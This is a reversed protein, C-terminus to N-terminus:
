PDHIFVIAVVDPDSVSHSCALANPKGDTLEAAVGSGARADRHQHAIDHRSCRKRDIRCGGDLVDCLDEEIVVDTRDGYDIDSVLQDAHHAFRVENAPVAIRGHAAVM